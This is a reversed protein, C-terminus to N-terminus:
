RLERFRVRRGATLLAPDGSDPDFLVRDTTGILLWGGPTAAPYVASYPGAIAVSGAPIRTRPELLRPLELLPDGGVLYAFGPAFGVFAVLYDPVSHRRVVEEASVGALAAVDALDAGDYRVSIEVPECGQPAGTRGEAGLEGPTGVAGTTGEACRATDAVATDAVAQAALRSVLGADPARERGVGLVTRHGPIVEEAFEGFAARALAALRHVADHGDIEVLLAREGVPRVVSM